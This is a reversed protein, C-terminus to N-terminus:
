SNEGLRRKGLEAFCAVPERLQETSELWADESHEQPEHKEPCPGPARQGHLHHTLRSETHAMTKRKTDVRGSIQM